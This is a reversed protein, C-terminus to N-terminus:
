NMRVAFEGHVPHNHAGFGFFHEDDPLHMTEFVQGGRFGLGGNVVGPKEMVLLNENRDYFALRFPNKRVKVIFNGAAIRFIEGELEADFTETMKWRVGPWDYKAVFYPGNAEPHLTDTPFEKGAPSLHVRVVDENLFSLRVKGNQCHFTLQHGNTEHRQVSGLLTYGSTQSPYDAASPDSGAATASPLVALLALWL